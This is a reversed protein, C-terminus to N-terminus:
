RIRGEDPVGDVTSSSVAVRVQATTQPRDESLARDKGSFPLEGSDMIKAMGKGHIRQQAPIPLARIDRSLEREQSGVHSVNGYYGGVIVQVPNLRESRGGTFPEGSVVALQNHGCRAWFSSPSSSSVDWDAPHRSAHSGSRGGAVDERFSSACWGCNGRCGGAAAATELRVVSTGQPAVPSSPDPGVPFGPTERRGRAPVCSRRSSVFHGARQWEHVTENRLKVSDLIYPSLAAPVRCGM